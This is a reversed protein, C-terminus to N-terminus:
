KIEIQYAVPLRTFRTMGAVVLVAEEGPKLSLPIDVTQDPNLEIHTVTTTDGKTILALRYTQPLVNQVRVFGAAEWSEDDVEFDSQYDIADIQVDDLLFGEGNLAADTVYEFRIQVKQGAFESLDVEETVWDNTQGNYGWGFSNGSPDEGTGSPTTLIEWTEGDTSAELFVYDYDTELDYWMAFSMSIPASVDTFDFERTLTM